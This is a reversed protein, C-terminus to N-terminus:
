RKAPQRQPPVARKDKEQQVPPLDAEAEGEVPEMLSNSLDLLEKTERLRGSLQERVATLKRVQATVSDVRRRAEEDAAKLRATVERDSETKAKDLERRLADRKTTMSESFERDIRIRDREASKDIAEQRREAETTLKESQARAAALMSKHTRYTEEAAAKARAKVEAAQSKAVALMRAASEEDAQTELRETLAAIERRAIELEGRLEAAQAKAEDRESTVRDLAATLDTMRQRVEGRDFGHRAVTFGEPAHDDVAAM